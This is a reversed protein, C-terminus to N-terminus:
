RNQTKHISKNKQTKHHIEIPRRPNKQTKQKQQHIALISIPKSPQSPLTHTQQISLHTHTAPKKKLHHHIPHTHTQQTLFTLTLKNPQSLCLPISLFFYINLFLSIIFFLINLHLPLFYLVKSIQHITFHTTLIFLIAKQSTLHQSKSFKSTFERIHHIKWGVKNISYLLLITLKFM